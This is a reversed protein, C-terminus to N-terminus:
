SPPDPLLEGTVSREARLVARAAAMVQAPTVAAIRRPWEEVDAVEMGTTLAIGFIRAGGQLSDRAFIASARMRAKADEVEQESVGGELLKAITADIAAELASLEVGSRPSASIDFTTMDLAFASYSADAGTAVNKDLVVERYLRSQTGGGLIESLVQLAYAHRTEGGRYSPALYSRGLWPQSVQRDKLQVRRAAQPPPEQPRVRPPLAKPKIAGYYKEALPKLEAADIDGAVILAANNPAYYTAYWEEADARTLARMEHMWGIVPRGYPHNVFTAAGMQERLRAGPRNDISSRREELIVDREPDVEADTLLLNSMRDAELRMVIELRGREVNQFYGTYDFSTFANERGGERAVIRSFEGSPLTKTAKFMLHELFHAIGSKGHKEDAAGVKYWVMHSVIPSRRNTVVVVQMGNSLTFTEPNFVQAPAPAPRLTALLVIAAAAAGSIASGRPKSM